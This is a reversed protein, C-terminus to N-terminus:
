YRRRLVKLELGMERLTDVREEILVGLKFANRCRWVWQYLGKDDDVHVKATGHISIYEQLQAIRTDWVCQYAHTDLLDVGMQTLQRAKDSHLKGSSYKRRCRRIWYYLNRDRGYCANATGHDDVYQQLQEIRARWRDAVTGRKKSTNPM